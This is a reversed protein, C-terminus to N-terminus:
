NIGGIKSIVQALNGQLQYLPQRFAETIVRSLIGTIGQEIIERILRNVEESNESIWKEAAEKIMPKVEEAVMLEFMSPKEVERGNYGYEREITRKFLGEDIARDVLAKAEEETLLEGLSERVRQFMREQFTTSTALQNSNM